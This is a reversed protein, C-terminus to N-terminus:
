KGVGVVRWVSGVVRPRGAHLGGADCWCDELLPRLEIPYLMQSRILLNPTRSGEGANVCSSADEQSTDDPMSFRLPESGTPGDGIPSAEDCGIAASRGWIRVRGQPNGQPDPTHKEPDIPRHNATGTARMAAPQGARSPTPAPGFAHEVAQRTDSLELTTYTNLTLRVDSHRALTQAVKASAGSKVLATIYGHRFSHWDMIRGSRDDVALMDSARRERRDIPNRGQRIYAARAARLDPVLAKVRSRQGLPWLAVGAAKGKLFAALTGALTSPLPLIAEHGNKTYAAAVRVLPGGDGDLDFSAPTLSAAESRRLGTSALLNYIVARAQGTMGDRTPGTRTTDILRALEDAGLVRRVVRRDDRESRKGIMALPDAPLRGHRVLWRTFSRCATIGANFTRASAGSTKAKDDLILLLRAGDIQNITTWKTTNMAATIYARTDRCHKPSSGKALMAAGFDALHDALTRRAADSLRTATPGAIEAERAEREWQSALRDALRADTTRTSRQKPRGDAGRFEAIYRTSNKRKFISPM